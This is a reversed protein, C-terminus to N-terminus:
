DDDIDFPPKDAVVSRWFFRQFAELRHIFEHDRKVVQFMHCKNGFIGSMIAHDQNFVNMYHQLHGQLKLLNSKITTGGENIKIYKNDYIDGTKIQRSTEIPMGKNTNKHSSLLKQTLCHLNFQETIIGLQVNFKDSLCPPETRGTKIEWLKNWDKKTGHILTYCDSGGIGSNRDNLDVEM